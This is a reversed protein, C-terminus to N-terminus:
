VNEDHLTVRPKQNTLWSYLLKAFIEYVEGQDEIASSVAVQFMIRLREKDPLPKFVTPKGREFDTVFAVSYDELYTSPFNFMKDIRKTQEEYFEMVELSDLNHYNALYDLFQRDIKYLQDLMVSRVVAKHHNNM